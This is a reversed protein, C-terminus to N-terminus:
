LRQSSLGCNKSDCNLFLHTITANKEHCSYILWKNPIALKQLAPILIPKVDRFNLAAAAAYFSQVLYLENKPFVIHLDAIM